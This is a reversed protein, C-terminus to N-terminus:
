LFFGVSVPSWMQDGKQPGSANRLWAKGSDMVKHYAPSHNDETMCEVQLHFNEGGLNVLGLSEEGKDGKHYRFHADSVTSEKIELLKSM